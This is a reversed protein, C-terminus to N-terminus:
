PESSWLATVTLDELVPEDDVWPSASTNVPSVLRAFYSDVFWRLSGSIWLSEVPGLSAKVDRNASSSEALSVRRDRLRRRASSPLSEEVEDLWALFACSRWTVTALVTHSM